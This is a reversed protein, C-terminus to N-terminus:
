KKKLYWWAGGGIAVAGAGALLAWVPVPGVRRSMLGPPPLPELPPLPQAVENAADQSLTLLSPRLSSVTLTRNTLLAPSLGLGRLPVQAYDGYHQPDGGGDLNLEQEAWVMEGVDYGAGPIPTEVNRPYQRYRGYGDPEYLSPTYPQMQALM